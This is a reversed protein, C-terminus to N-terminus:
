HPIIAGNNLAKPGVLSSMVFEKSEKGFIKHLM